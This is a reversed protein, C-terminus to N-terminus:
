KDWPFDPIESHTKMGTERLIKNKEYKTTFKLKGSKLDKCEQETLGFFLGTSCGIMFNLPYPYSVKIQELIQLSTKM